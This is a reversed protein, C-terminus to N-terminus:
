KLLALLELNFEEAILKDVNVPFIYLRETEPLKQVRDMEKLADKTFEWGIFFGAQRKDRRLATEFKDIEPRGVKDTNKVQIPLYSQKEGSIGSAAMLPLDGAKVPLSVKDALYIRGDLGLDGVKKQNTKAFVQHGQLQLVQGLQLVAWNEFEFGPLARLQERSRPLNSFRYVPSDTNWSNAIEETGMLPKAIKVGCVDELRQGMVNCSTPSIDIGLWRRGLQQASVLATGCGCFGDLVIDEPNSSANIIRELLALPKQTPYGLREKAQSQVAQIDDWLNQVPRGKLESAFSKRRIRGDKNKPLHLRGELDWQKMKELSIAWGNKPHKYGKYEYMLNPRPAPNGLDALRYRRGQEDVYKFNKEIYEAYGVAEHSFQENFTYKRSKSYYFISDTQIRFKNASSTSGLTRKWIIENQFYNAGFIEDLMVKIYHSAHWDCHYYFSGTPKLVRYLQEVRPRMYEIYAMADGFRDDFARQEQTDGWFVEYNRNSNFPPDIYILDVCNDPFSDLIQVCDGCYITQPSFHVRELNHPVTSM